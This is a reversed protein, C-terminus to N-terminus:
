FEKRRFIWYAMIYGCFAYILGYLILNPIQADRPPDNIPLYLIQDKLSFQRL